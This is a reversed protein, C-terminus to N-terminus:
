DTELWGDYAEALEALAATDCGDPLGDLVVLWQADEADDEGALAERVPRPEDPLGLRETLEAAVDEATDRDPLVLIHRADTM